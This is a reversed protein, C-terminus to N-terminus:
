VMSKFAESDRLPLSPRGRSPSDASQMKWSLTANLTRTKSAEKLTQQQKSSSSRLQHNGPKNLPLQSSQRHSVRPDSEVLPLRPMVELRGDATCHLSSSSRSILSEVSLFDSIM